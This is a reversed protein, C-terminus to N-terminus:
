APFHLNLLAILRDFWDECGQWGTHIHWCKLTSDWEAGPDLGYADGLAERSNFAQKLDAIFKESYPAWVYVSKGDEAFRVSVNSAYKLEM